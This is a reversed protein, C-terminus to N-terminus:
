VSTHAHFPNKNYIVFHLHPLHELLSELAAAVFNYFCFVAFFAEFGEFFGETPMDQVSPTLGETIRGVREQAVKPSEIDFEDYLNGGTTAAPSSQKTIGFDDYLNAM